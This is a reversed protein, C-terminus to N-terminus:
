WLCARLQRIQDPTLAAPRGVPRGRARAAERAAASRENIVTREYEALTGFVGTLM